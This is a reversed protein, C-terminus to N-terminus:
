SRPLVSATLCFSAIMGATAARVRSGRPLRRADFLLLPAGAARPGLPARGCLSLSLRLRPLAPPDRACHSARSEPCPLLRAGAAVLASLGRPDHSGGGRCVRPSVVHPNWAWRTEVGLLWPVTMGFLRVGVEGRVPLASLPAAPFGPLVTTRRFRFHSAASRFGYSGPPRFHPM